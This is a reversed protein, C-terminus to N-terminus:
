KSVKGEVITIKSFWGIKYVGTPAPLNNLTAIEGVNPNQYEQEIRLEGEKCNYVFTTFVKDQLDFENNPVIKEPIKIPNHHIFEISKEFDSKINTNLFNAWEPNEEGRIYAFLALAYGWEMQSLYGSKSWGWSDFDKKTQFATNANFIGLGFIIVILDTLDENNEEIRKEGLLKIHAIEHALTAVISVPDTVQRKELAIHYKNDEQLGFYLGGSYNETEVNELFLRSGFVGGADFETRGEEYIDIVIDDPNVEMQKAVINLTSIVSPLQGDYTIPFHEPTPTLLHVNEIKERGFSDIFWIFCNELWERTEANVPCENDDLFLSM